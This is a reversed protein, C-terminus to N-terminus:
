ALRENKYRRLEEPEPLFSKLPPPTFHQLHEEAWRPDTTALFRISALRHSELERRISATSRPIPAQRVRQYQSM